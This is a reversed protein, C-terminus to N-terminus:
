TFCTRDYQTVQLLVNIFILIDFSAINNSTRMQKYVKDTIKFLNDLYM